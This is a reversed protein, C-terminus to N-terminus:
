DIKTFRGGTLAYRGLSTAVVVRDGDRAIASVIGPVVYRVERRTVRDYRLLGNGTRNREGWHYMGAWIAGREIMLASVSWRRLERLGLMTYQGADSLFGIDGTGTAGEADYFVKGFWYGDGERVLAGVREGIEQDREPLGQDRLDAIAKANEPISQPIPYKFFVEPVSASPVPQLLVAIVLWM